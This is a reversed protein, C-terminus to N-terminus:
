DKEDEIPQRDESLSDLGKQINEQLIALRKHANEHVAKSCRVTDLTPFRDSPKIFHHLRGNDVFHITIYWQESAAAADLKELIEPDAFKIRFKRVGHAAGLADDVIQGLRDANDTTLTQGLAFFDANSKTAQEKEDIAEGLHEGLDLVPEGEEQAHSETPISKTEDTM